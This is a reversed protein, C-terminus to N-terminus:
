FRKVKGQCSYGTLKWEKEENEKFQAFTEQEKIGGSQDYLKKVAEKRSTAIIDQDFDDKIWNFWFTTKKDKCGTVRKAM